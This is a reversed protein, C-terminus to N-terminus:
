AAIQEGCGISELREDFAGSDVGVQILADKISLDVGDAMHVLVIEQAAQIQDMSVLGRELLTQEVRKYQPVVTGDKVKEMVEELTTKGSLVLRIGAQALTEYQLQKSAVDVIDQESAESLLLDRIEANIEIIELIPVRGSLRGSKLKPVKIGEQWVGNKKLWAIQIETPPVWDLETGKPIARLLRQAAIGTLVTGIMYAPVGLGALRSPVQSASNAHITTLLNHGTQGAQLAAMASTRDRIEGVMIVHPSLRVVSSLASDWTIEYGNVDIQCFGEVEYEVPNEITVISRSDNNLYGLCSYLTTTKGSGTPGSLFLAGEPNELIRILTQRVFPLVDLDSIMKSSNVSDLVRCVIYYSGHMSTPAVAVRFNIARGDYHLRMRGDQCVRKMRDILAKSFIQEKFIAAVPWDFVNSSRSYEPIVFDRYEGDCKFRVRAGDNSRIDFVIDSARAVVAEQFIHNLVEIATKEKLSTAEFNIIEQM